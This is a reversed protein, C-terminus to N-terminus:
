NKKVDHRKLLVIKQFVVNKSYIILTLQIDKEATQKIEGSVSVGFRSAEKTLNLQYDELLRGKQIFIKRNIQIWTKRFEKKEERYEEFVDKDEIGLRDLTQIIGQDIKLSRSTLDEHPIISVFLDKIKQISLYKIDSRHNTINYVPKYYLYIGAVLLIFIIFLFCGKKGKRNKKAM